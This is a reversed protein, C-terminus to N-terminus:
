KPKKDRCSHLYAVLDDVESKQLIDAFAPMEHGGQLIQTRIQNKSLTRGVGSLDPGKTGGNKRITHCHQCGNDAFIAAGHREDAPSAFAAFLSTAALFFILASRLLNM